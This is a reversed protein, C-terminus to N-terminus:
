DFLLYLLIISEREWEAVVVLLDVDSADCFGFHSAGPREGAGIVTPPFHADVKAIEALRARVVDSGAFNDISFLLLLVPELVARAHEVV